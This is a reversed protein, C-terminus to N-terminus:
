KNELGAELIHLIWEETILREFLIDLMSRFKPM